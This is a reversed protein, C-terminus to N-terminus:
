YKGFGFVIDFVPIVRVDFGYPYEGFATAAGLKLGFKHTPKWFLVVRNEFVWAGTSFDVKFATFDAELNLTTLVDRNYNLGLYVNPTHNFALMRNYFFPLDIDPFSAEGFKFATALGGRFTLYNGQNQYGLLVENRLLIIPPIISNEPLIGGAGERALMKLLISPYNLQHLSAIRWKRQSNNTWGKKLGLNPSLLFYLPQIRWEMNNRTGMKKVGFLPWVKRKPELTQTSRDPWIFLNTSDTTKLDQQAFLPTNVFCFFLFIPLYYIPNKM